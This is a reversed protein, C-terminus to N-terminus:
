CAPQFFFWLLFVLVVIFALGIYAGFRQSAMRRDVDAFQREMAGKQYRGTFFFAPIMLLYRILTLIFGLSSVLKAVIGFGSSIIMQWGWVLSIAMNTEIFQSNAWLARIFGWKSYEACFPLKVWLSMSILWMGGMYLSGFVSGWNLFTSNRKLPALILAALFFGWSAIEQWTPRNFVIRYLIIMSMLLLPLGSSIWPNVKQIDFLIWFLTWPIFLLTMWHMGSIPLPGSPRKGALVNLAPGSWGRRFIQFLPAVAPESSDLVTFPEPVKFLTNFQMLLSSDGEVLYLGELLAEQGTREGRSIQLWIDSPTKITMTPDSASGVHFSCRGSDIRLHYVGPEQGSVEFQIVAKLDGASSPDFFLPLGEITQRVNRRLSSSATKDEL